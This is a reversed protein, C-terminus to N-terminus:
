CFGWPPSCDIICYDYQSSYQELCTKLLVERCMM